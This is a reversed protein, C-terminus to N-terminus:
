YVVFAFIIELPGYKGPKSRKGRRTSRRPFMRRPCLPPRSFPGERSKAGMIQLTHLSKTRVEVPNVASLIEKFFFLSGSIHTGCASSGSVALSVCCDSSARLEQMAM